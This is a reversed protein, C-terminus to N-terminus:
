GGLLQLIGRIPIRVWGPRNNLEYALEYCAKELMFARLLTAWEADDAPLFTAGAVAERYGALFAADVWRNWTMVWGDLQETDEARIAPGMEPRLLSGYSAYHFSRLMGAVDRLASRKLRRESLPRTPEGEFDIIVLDRGTYLIQEAHLDGHTRIRMGGFKHSLLVRLHSDLCLAPFVISRVLEGDQFPGVHCLFFAAYARKEPLFAQIGGLQGLPPM